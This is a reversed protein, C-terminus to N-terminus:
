AANATPAAHVYRSVTTLFKQPDIPKTLFENCGASLCKQRDSVLANATLAVIPFRYGKDRLRMTASYGDLVPMQMDMLILDYPRNEALAAIAKECAIKGNPAVDVSIGAERLYCSILKQNAVGDEALLVSGTLNFKIPPGKEQVVAEQPSQILQVGDLTGTAITLAFTSGKGVESTVTIDGGLLGALHKAITLGLGTGGMRRIADADAQMFPQFLADQQQRTIGLGTDSVSIKLKPAPIHTPTAMSATLTVGGGETFKIANGVLNILIQRLRTPDTRVQKPIMGDYVVELSLGKDIATARLMSVVDAIIEAPSCAINETRMKGAEIKSLDLIDNVITLLHEGNRRITRVFDLREEDTRSEAMYLDSFGVIATLPTRIEHSMNALFASKISDAAAAERKIREVEADAHATTRLVLLASRLLLMLFLLTNAAIILSLGVRPGYLGAWDGLEWLGCSAVPIAIAPLFRRLLGIARLDSLSGEGRFLRERLSTFVGRLGSDGASKRSAGM